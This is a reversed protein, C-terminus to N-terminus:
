FSWVAADHVPTHVYAMHVTLARDSQFSQNCEPCQFRFGDTVSPLSESLCRRVLSGHSDTSEAVSRKSPTGRRSSAMCTSRGKSGEHVSSLSSDVESTKRSAGEVLFHRNLARKEALITAEMYKPHTWRADKAAQFSRKLASDEALLSQPPMTAGGGGGGPAKELLQQRFDPARNKRNALGAAGLCQPLIKSAGKLTLDGAVDIVVSVIGEQFEENSMAVVLADVVGTKLCLQSADATLAETVCTEIANQILDNRLIDHVLAVVHNEAQAALKEFSPEDKVRSLLEVIWSPLAEFKCEALHGDEFFFRNLIAFLFSGLAKQVREDELIEVIGLKVCKVANSCLTAGSWGCVCRFGALAGVTVSLVASIWLVLTLVEPLDFGSALSLL